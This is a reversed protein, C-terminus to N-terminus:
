AYLSVQKKQSRPFHVLALALADKLWKKRSPQKRETRRIPTQRGMKVLFFPFKSFFSLVTHCKVSFRVTPVAKKTIQSLEDLRARPRGEAVKRGRFLRAGANTKWFRVNAMENNIQRSGATVRRAPSNQWGDHRRPVRVWTKSSVGRHWSRPTQPTQTLPFPTAYALKGTASRGYRKAPLAVRSFSGATSSM